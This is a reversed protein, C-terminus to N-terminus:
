EGPFISYGNQLRSPPGGPTWRSPHLFDREWYFEIGPGDLGYHAAISGISDQGVYITYFNLIHNFRTLIYFKALGANM